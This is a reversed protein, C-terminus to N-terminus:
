VLTITLQPHSPCGGLLRLLCVHQKPIEAIQHLLNCRLEFTRAYVEGIVGQSCEIEVHMSHRSSGNRILFVFWLSSDSVFGAVAIRTVPNVLIKYVVFGHYVLCGARETIVSLAYM